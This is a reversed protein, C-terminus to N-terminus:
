QRCFARIIQEFPYKHGKHRSLGLIDRYGIFSNREVLDGYKGLARRSVVELCLVKERPREFTPLVMWLESKGNEAIKIRPANKARNLLHFYCDTFAEFSELAEGTRYQKKLLEPLADYVRRLEARRKEDPDSQHTRKTAMSGSRTRPNPADVPNSAALRYGYLPGLIVAM